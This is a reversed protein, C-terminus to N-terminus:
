TVSAPKRAIAPCALSRSRHYDRALSSAAPDAPTTAMTSHTDTVDNKYAVPIEYTMAFKPTFAYLGFLTLANNELGNELETYRYYPMFKPAFDRPDTGTEQAISLFPTLLLCAISSFILVRPFRM